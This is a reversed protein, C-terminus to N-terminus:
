TDLLGSILFTYDDLPKLHGMGLAINCGTYKAVYLWKRILYAARKAVKM